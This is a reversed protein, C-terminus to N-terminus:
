VFYKSHTHTHTRTTQLVNDDIRGGGTRWWSLCELRLPWRLLPSGIVCWHTQDSCVASACVSLRTRAFVSLAIEFGCESTWESGFEDRQFIALTADGSKLKCAQWRRLININIENIRRELRTQKSIRQSRSFSPSSAPHPTTAPLLLPAITVFVHSLRCLVGTGRKLYCTHTHGCTHTHTHSHLITYDLGQPGTPPPGQIHSQQWKGKRAMAKGTVCLSVCVSLCVCPAQGAM